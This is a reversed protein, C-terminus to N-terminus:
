LNVLPLRPRPVQIQSQYKKLQIFSYSPPLKSVRNRRSLASRTKLRASSTKNAYIIHELYIIHIFYSSNILSSPYPANM